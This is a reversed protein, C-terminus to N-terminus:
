PEAKLELNKHIVDVSDRYNKLSNVMYEVREYHTANALFDLDPKFYLSFKQLSDGQLPIYEDLLPNWLANVLDDAYEEEFIRQLRRAGKGRRSFHNYVKQINVAIGGLPNIIVMNKNDGLGFIEKHYAKKAELQEEPSLKQHVVVEELVITDRRITDQVSTVLYSPTQASLVMGYAGIVMGVIFLFARAM